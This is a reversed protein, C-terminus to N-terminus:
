FLLFRVTVLYINTDALKCILPIECQRCQHPHCTMLVAVVNFPVNKNMIISKM